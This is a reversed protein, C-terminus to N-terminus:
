RVSALHQWQVSPMAMVRAGLEELETARDYSAADQATRTVANLLGWQSLDGGKILHELVGSKESQQLKFKDTLLEVAKIPNGEINRETTQRLQEVLSDFRTRSVADRVLDQVKLFFARNDAELTEDSFLEYADPTDAASRGLHTFRNRTSQDPSIMGNTCVLRYILLEVRLSGRGVESNSICVGAQVPDGVKIDAQIGPTVVKLYMRTETLECSVVKAGQMEDLIPLVAEALDFNDLRRYKHSLFARADNGLTRVMRQEPQEQFWHNVNNLLLEPAQTLMRDYYAAPIGVRDGIQRHTHPTIDFTHNSGNTLLTLQGAATMELARTDAIYDAKQTQQDALAQAMEALTKGSKMILNEM